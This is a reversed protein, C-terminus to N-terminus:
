RDTLSYISMHTPRYLKYMFETTSQLVPTKSDPDDDIIIYMKEDNEVANRYMMWVVDATLSPAARWIFKFNEPLLEVAIKM